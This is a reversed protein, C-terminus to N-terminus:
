HFIFNNNYLTEDLQGKHSPTKKLKFNNFLSDFHPPYLHKEYTKQGKKFITKKCLQICFGYFYKSKPFIM